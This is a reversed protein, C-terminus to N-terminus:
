RPSGSFGIQQHADFEPLKNVNAQAETQGEYTSFRHDFDHLMKAEYLPLCCEREKYFINGGLSWGDAELEEATRFLDSDSAMNFLGQKFTIGWSNISSDGERILVPVVLM